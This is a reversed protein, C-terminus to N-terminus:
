KCAHARSQRDEDIKRPRDSWGDMQTGKGRDRQREKQRDTNTKRDNIIQSNKDAPRDWVMGTQRQRDRGAETQGHKNRDAETQGTELGGLNLVRRLHAM